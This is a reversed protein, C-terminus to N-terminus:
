RSRPRSFLWWHEEASPVVAGDAAGLFPGPEVMQRLKKDLESLRQKEVTLDLGVQEAEEMLRQLRSRLWVESPYDDVASGEARALSDLYWRWSDLYSRVEHELAARYDIARRRRLEHYRALLSRVRTREDAALGPEEQELKDALNILRGLTMTSRVKRGDVEAVLRRVVAGSALFAELEDLMAAFLDLNASVGSSKM